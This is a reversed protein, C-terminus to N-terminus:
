FHDFGYINEKCVLMIKRRIKLNKLKRLQMSRECRVLFDGWKLTRM